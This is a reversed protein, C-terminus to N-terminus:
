RHVTNEIWLVDERTLIGGIPIQCVGWPTSTTHMVEVSETAM